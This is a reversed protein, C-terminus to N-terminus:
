VSSGSLGQLSLVAPINKLDPDELFERIERVDFGKM